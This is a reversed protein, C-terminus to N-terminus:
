SSLCPPGSWDPWCHRRMLETLETASTWHEFGEVARELEDLGQPTLALGALQRFKQRIESEDYPYVCDGRPSDCSRTVQQGDNLTLTVRAPNLAPVTSNMTPEEKIYVRHRLARIAPDELASDDVSEYGASGRVALCAAVHPLSYKSAFYNAPDPNCMVTAFRFTAVDISKIDEAKANLAAIAEELADLAAYIPNCCARRTIEWRTGLQELLGAPKFGDGVLSSLAEEIADDQATFGALALDPALGLAFGSMGGAVNLTTAGAVANKYSPTLVLTAAIRMARSTDAANLARLRSGAAAAGLLAAQGNQHALPRTTMAAALRAGADYGLILAALMDRGSCRGWEGVSLVGPLIQMAGQYSVYRHGEGLELSRGAIGNLLAATRPDSMPWGHSFVTAGTGATASLRERLRRVEPRSAGALIVGITDLVVLKAHRQVEEPVQELTTEAVFHALTEIEQAM